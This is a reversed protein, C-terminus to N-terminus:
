EYYQKELQKCIILEMERPLRQVVFRKPKRFDDINSLSNSRQKKAPVCVFQQNDANNETIMTNGCSENSSNQCKSEKHENHFAEKIEAGIETDSLPINLDDTPTKCELKPEESQNTFADDEVCMAGENEANATTESHEEIDTDSHYSNESFDERESEMEDETSPHNEVSDIETLHSINHKIDQILSNNEKEQKRYKKWEQYKRKKNHKRNQKEKEEAARMIKDEEEKKQQAFLAAYSVIKKPMQEVIQIDITYDKSEDFPVFELDMNFDVHKNSYTREYKLIGKTKNETEKDIEPTKRECENDNEVHLEQETIATVDNLNDLEQKETETNNEPSIPNEDISEGKDEEFNEHKCTKKIPIKGEINRLKVYDNLDDESEMLDQTKAHPLPVLEDYIDGEIECGEPGCIGNFVVVKGKDLYATSNKTTKQNNNPKKEKDGDAPKITTPGKQGAALSNTSEVKSGSSTTTTEKAEQKHNLSSSGIPEGKLGLTSTLDKTEGKNSSPEPKHTSSTFAENKNATNVTAGLGKDSLNETVSKSLEPLKTTTSPTTPAIDKEEKKATTTSHAENAIKETSSSVTQFSPTSNDPIPSSYVVGCSAIVLFGVLINRM